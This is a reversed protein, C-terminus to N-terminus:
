ALHTEMDDVTYTWRIAKAHHPLDFRLPLFSVASLSM